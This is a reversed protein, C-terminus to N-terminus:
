GNDIWVDGITPTYGDAVPDEIGIFIRGATPAYVGATHSLMTPAILNTRAAAPTSAGTGGDAVTLDTIGTITGGTITAASASISTTQLDVFFGKAVRAYTQGLWMANDANPRLGGWDDIQWKTTFTNLASGSVGSTSTQFFIAGGLGTGTSLGGAIVTYGGAQNM